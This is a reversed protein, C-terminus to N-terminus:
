ISRSESIMIIDYHYYLLTWIRFIIYPIWDIIPFNFLGYIELWIGETQVFLILCCWFSKLIDCGQFRFNSDDITWFTYKRNVYRCKSICCHWGFWVLSYRKLHISFAFFFWKHSIGKVINLVYIIFLPFFQACWLNPIFILSIPYLDMYCINVEYIYYLANWM